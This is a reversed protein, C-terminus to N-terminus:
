KRLVHTAFGGYEGDLYINKLQHNEDYAATDQNFKIGKGELEKVASELDATRWVFNQRRM